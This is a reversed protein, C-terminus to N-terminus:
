DGRVQGVGGVGDSAGAIVEAGEEAGLVAGAAFLLVVHDLRVVVQVRDGTERDVREVAFDAFRGGGHEVAEVGEEEVELVHAHTDVGEHPRHSQCHFRAGLRSDAEDDQVPGVRGAPGPALTRYQSRAVLGEHTEVRDGKPM